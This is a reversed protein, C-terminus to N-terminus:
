VSGPKKQANLLLGDDCWQVDRKQWAVLLLLVDHARPLCSLQRISCSLRSCAADHMKALAGSNGSLGSLLWECSSPMILYNDGGDVLVHM